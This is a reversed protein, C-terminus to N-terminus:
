LLRELTRVAHAILGRMAEVEAPDPEGTWEDMFFKKFEFAIACGQEPWKAHAFRTLEGRGQFAVNERVDLRRGNFDHAALAEMLPDVVGAWRERPMSFTGINIDPADAQPTPPGDPGDRRHNYSHVDLVAFRPHDAAMQGLVQEVQAYFRRHYQRSAEVEDATLPSRWVELGWCQEPTEYVAEDLSRNLDVEFRSRHAVLRNPAASIAEGTFPDEERLRGADGLAFRGQLAARVAHGDHIATALVPGGGRTLTWWPDANLAAPTQPM